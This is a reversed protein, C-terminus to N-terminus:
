RSTPSSAWASAGKRGCFAVVLADRIRIARVRSRPDAAVIECSNALIVGGCPTGTGSTGTGLLRSGSAVVNLAVAPCDIAEDRDSRGEHPTVPAIRPPRPSTASAITTIHRPPQIPSAALGSAGCTGTTPLGDGPGSTGGGRGITSGITSAGGDGGTGLAASGSGAAATAGTAVGSEVGAAVESGAGAGAGTAGGSRLFCLGWRVGPRDVRAPEP